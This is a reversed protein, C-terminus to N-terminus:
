VGNMSPKREASLVHKKPLRFGNSADMNSLNKRVGLQNKPSTYITEAHVGFRSSRKSKDINM